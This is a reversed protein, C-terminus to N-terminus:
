RGKAEGGLAEILKARTEADLERALFPALLDVADEIRPPRAVAAGGLNLVNIDAEGTVTANLAKVGGSVDASAATVAGLVTVGGAELGGNLKAGAAEIKGDVKASGAEVKGTAQLSAAILAPDKVAVSVSLAAPLTEGNGGTQTIAVSFVTDATLEPSTWRGSETPKQKKQGEAANSFRVLQDDVSVSTNWLLVVKSGSEVQAVPIHESAGKVTAILGDFFFGGPFTPVSLTTSSKAGGINEEITVVAADPAEVTPFEALEILVSEGAALKVGSKPTLVYEAVGETFGSPPGGFEWSESSADFSSPLGSMLPAGSSGPKGVVLTFTVKKVELDEATNNTVAVVLSGLTPDRRPASTTLPAPNVFPAYTLQTTADEVAVWANPRAIHAM